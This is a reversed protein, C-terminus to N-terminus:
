EEIDVEHVGIEALCDVEGNPTNLKILKAKGDTTSLEGKMKQVYADALSAQYFAKETRVFIYDGLVQRAVLIVLFIKM